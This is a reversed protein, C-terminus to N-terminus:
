EMAERNVIRDSFRVREISRLMNEGDRGPQTDSVVVTEGQTAIAYDGYAGQFFATDEGSGGDVKDNGGLPTIVNDGNNRTTQLRTQLLKM